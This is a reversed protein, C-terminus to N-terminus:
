GMMLVVRREEASDRKEGRQEGNERRERERKRNNQAGNEMVERIFPLDPNNFSWDRPVRM